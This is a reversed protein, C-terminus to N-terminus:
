KLDLIRDAGGAGDVSQRQAIEFGNKLAWQRTYADRLTPGVDVM